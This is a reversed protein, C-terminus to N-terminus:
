GNGAAPRKRADYVSWGVSLLTVVAGALQEVAGEDIGYRTALWAGAATLTHRLLAQATANM